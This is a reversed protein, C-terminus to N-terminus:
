GAGKEKERRHHREREDKWNYSKNLLTVTGSVIIVILILAIFMLSHALDFNGIFGPISFFSNRSIPLLTFNAYAIRGTVVVVSTQGPSYGKLSVSVLYVGSTLNTFDYTGYISTVTRFIGGPGSAIINADSLQLQRGPGVTANVEGFIGGQIPMLTLNLVTSVGPILQVITYNSTYGAKKAGISYNGAPIYSFSFQGLPPSSLTKYATTSNSLVVLAGTVPVRNTTVFGTLNGKLEVLQFYVTVNSKLTSISYTSNSIYGKRYAQVTYNGAPLSISYMGQANTSNFWEQTSNSITIRVGQMPQGLTNTAVATIRHYVIAPAAAPVQFLAILVAFAVLFTLANKMQFIM